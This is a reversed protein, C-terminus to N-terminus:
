FADDNRWLQAGGVFDGEGLPTEERAGIPVRVVKSWRGAAGAFVEALETDVRESHTEVYVRRVRGLAPRAERLVELELGQIDLDILDVHGRVRLLKSLCVTEVQISPGQWGSNEPRVLTQGYWNAPDGFFFEQGRGRRRQSGRPGPLM